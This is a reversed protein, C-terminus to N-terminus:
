LPYGITSLVLRAHTERLLIAVIATCYIAINFKKISFKSILYQERESINWVILTPSIFLYIVKIVKDLM